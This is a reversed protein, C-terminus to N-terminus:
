AHEHGGHDHDHGAEAAALDILREWEAAFPDAFAAGWDEVPAVPHDFASEFAEAEDDTLLCETLAARVAAQDQQVGIM